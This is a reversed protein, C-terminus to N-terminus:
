KASGRLSKIYEIEHQANADTPDLALCQRLLKEAEDLKGQDTRIFAMGRWARRKDFSKMDDPSFEAASEAESFDAYAKQWDKRSKYWEAREGLYHSNMPAMAIAKDFLAKAEDSRNLDILAFGKLFYASSWTGDLILASKKQSGALGAYLIAEVQSRSSYIQRKEHAYRAEARAIIIDLVAIADAPKQAQISDYAKDILAADDSAQPQITSSLGGPGQVEVLPNQATAALALTFALFVPM